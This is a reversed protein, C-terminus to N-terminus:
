SALSTLRRIPWFVISLPFNILRLLPICVRNLFPDVVRQIAPSADYLLTVLIIELLVMFKQLDTLHAIKLTKTVTEALLILGVWGVLVYVSNGLIPLRRIAAVTIRGLIRVFVIGFFVSSCVVWLIKSMSVAAVINDTSLTFDVLLVTFITRGVGWEVTKEETDEHKSRAFHAAMLHIMYLAGLIKAWAHSSIFPATVLLALARFLYSGLSGVALALNRKSPPLHSAVASVVMLNDVSLLVEMIAMSALIPWQEQIEYLEPLEFM